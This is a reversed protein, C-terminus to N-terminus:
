WYYTNNFPRRGWAVSGNNMHKHNYHHIHRVSRVREGHRTVTVIRDEASMHLGEHVPATRKSLHLRDQCTNDHRCQIFRESMQPGKHVHATRRSMYETRESMHPGERVGATRGARALSNESLLLQPCHKEIPRETSLIKFFHFSSFKMTQFFYRDNTNLLWRTEFQQCEVVM